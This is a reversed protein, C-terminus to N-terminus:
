EHKNKLMAIVRKVRSRMLVFYLILVASYSVAFVILNDFSACVIFLITVIVDMVSGLIGYGAGNMRSVLHRELVTCWILYTLTTAAAVVAVSHTLLYSIWTIAVTAVVGIINAKLYAKELRYAKFYPILLLQLRGMPICVALLIHLYQLVNLYEPMFLRIVLNAPIYCFMAFFILGSAAFTLDPYASAMKEEDMSKLLPFIVLGATSTFTIVIHLLSMGFSYEGFQAVPAAFQVVFKGAIPMVGAAIAALTISMGAPSKEKLEALGDRSPDRKGFYLKRGIYICIAAFLFRALIDVGIMSKYDTVSVAMMLLYVVVTLIRLLLNLGNYIGTRNTASSISLVLLYGCSIPINLALMCYIYSNAESKLFSFVLFLVATILFILGFLIGTASRIRKFPLEDYKKGGYFLSMGDSYGLGFLNLYALYMVYMQWYGYMEPGMREPMILGTVFSLVLIVGQTLITGSIKRVGSRVINKNDLNDM